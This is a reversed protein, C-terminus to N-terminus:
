SPYQYVQKMEKKYKYYTGRDIGIIKIVDIDKLTGEFDSSYKRILEIAAQKKKVTYKAGKPQGIQKGNLKATVIGEKTRQHLDDVEKQSQEFAIRIQNKALSIIYTNLADIISKMLEDTAADGSNIMVQLKSEIAQKYTETNIHPEKLFILEIDKGFLEEYLQSGEEANRSMRSVSDFIVSDGPKLVSYLKNWEPRNLTTGSYSEKIIIADPYAAQINRVQRQKPTSKRTYGYKM